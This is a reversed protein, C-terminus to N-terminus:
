KEVSKIKCPLTSAINGKADKLNGSEDITYVAVEDSTDAINKYVVIEVHEDDKGENVSQTDVSYDKLERYTLQNRNAYAALGWDNCQRTTLDKVNLNSLVTIEVREDESSSSSSSSIIKRSSSSSLNESDKMESVESTEGSSHIRKETTTTAKSSSNKTENITKATSTAQSSVKEVQDDSSSKAHNIPLTIGMIAVLIVVVVILLILMIANNNKKM